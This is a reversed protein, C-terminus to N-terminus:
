IVSTQRYAPHTIVLVKLINLMKRYAIKAHKVARPLFDESVIFNPRFSNSQNISANIM